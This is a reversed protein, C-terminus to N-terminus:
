RRRDMFGGRKERLSLEFKGSMRGAEIDVSLIHLSGAIDRGQRVGSWDLLRGVCPYGGPEVSEIPDSAVLFSIGQGDHTAELEISLGVRDGDVLEQLGFCSGTVFQVTEGEMDLTADVETRSELEAVVETSFNGVLTGIELEHLPIRPQDAVEAPWVRDDLEAMIRERRGQIFSQVEDMEVLAGVQMFDVHDHLMNRIREIEDCLHQEEWVDALVDLMVSRYREPIEKQHFLRNALIGVARVSAANGGRGRFPRQNSFCSDAGWPLFHILGDTPNQYVFFNNQNQTYGDWFNILSEVAWYRLFNDVDVFKSIEQVSPDDGDLLSSLALLQSRDNEKKNTEAEFWEISKPYLDTLTGEYLNGQGNGFERELFTERVREVNSYIGLYQGNVTVTAFACRPAKVGAKRFVEYTLYQSVLARDQKNNNLTLGDLGEIPAQEVYEDFKVKLAPRFDDQSGLFGKKRIAVDRIVVGDLAIDAKFYSYPKALPNQFASDHSRSQRCLQKWDDEPLTIEVNLVRDVDFLRNADVQPASAVAEGSVAADAKAANETDAQALTVQKGGVTSPGRYMAQQFVELTVPPTVSREALSQLLRKGLEAADLEGDGSSDLREFVEFASRGRQRGGGRRQGFQRREPETLESLEWEGKFVRGLTRGYDSLFDRRFTSPLSGLFVFAGIM